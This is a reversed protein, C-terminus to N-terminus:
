VRSPLPALKLTNNYRQPMYGSTGTKAIGSAHRPKYKVSDASVRVINPMVLVLISSMLRLRWTTPQEEKSTDRFASSDGSSPDSPGCVM